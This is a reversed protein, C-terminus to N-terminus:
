RTFMSPVEPSDPTEEKNKGKLAKVLEPHIVQRVEFRTDELLDQAIENSKSPRANHMSRIKNEMDHLPQAVLTYIISADMRIKSADVRVTSTDIGTQPKKFFTM